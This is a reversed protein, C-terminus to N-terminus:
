NGGSVEIGVNNLNKVGQPADWNLLLIVEAERM